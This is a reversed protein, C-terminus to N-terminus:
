KSRPLSPVAGDRKREFMIKLSEQIDDPLGDLLNSLHQETDNEHQGVQDFHELSKKQSRYKVYKPHSKRVAETYPVAWCRTSDSKSNQLPRKSRACKKESRSKRFLGGQFKTFQCRKICSDTTNSRSDSDSEYCVRASDNRLKGVGVRHQANAMAVSVIGDLEAEFDHQAKKIIPPNRARLDHHPADVEDPEFVSSELTGQPAESSAKGFLSSSLSDDDKIGDKPGDFEVVHSEINKGANVQKREAKLVHIGQRSEIFEYVLSRISGKTSTNVEHARELYTLIDNCCSIFTPSPLTITQSELLSLLNARPMADSIYVFGMRNLQKIVPKAQSKAEAEISAKELGPPLNLYYRFADAPSDSETGTPQKTLSSLPVLSRIAVANMLRAMTDDLLQPVDCLISTGSFRHSATCSLGALDLEEMRDFEWKASLNQNLSSDIFPPLSKNPPSKRPVPNYMRLRDPTSEENRGLGGSDDVNPNATYYERWAEDYERRREKLVKDIFTSAAEDERAAIQKMECDYYRYDANIESLMSHVNGDYKLKELLHLLRSSLTLEIRKQSAIRRALWVRAICQIRVASSDKEAAEKRREAEAISKKKETVLANLVVKAKWVRALIQIRVAMDHRLKQTYADHCRKYERRALFRRATTQLRLRMVNRRHVHRREAELKALFSRAMRQIKMAAANEAKDIITRRISDFKCRLLHGRVTKQVVPAATEYLAQVIICLEGRIERLLHNTRRRRAIIDPVLARVDTRQWSGSQTIDIDLMRLSEPADDADIDGGGEAVYKQLEALREKAVALAEDLADLEEDVETIRTSKIRIEKHVASRLRALGSYFPRLNPCYRTANCLHCTLSSSENVVHCPEGSKPGIRECYWSGGSVNTTLLKVPRHCAAHYADEDDRRICGLWPLRRHLAERAEASHLALPQDVRLIIERVQENSGVNLRTRRLAAMHEPKRATTRRDRRIQERKHTNSNAHLPNDAPTIITVRSKRPPVPVPRKPAAM